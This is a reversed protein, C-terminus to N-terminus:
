ALLGVASEPQLGCAAPKATSDHSGCRRPLLSQQTDDSGTGLVPWQGPRSQAITCLAPGFGLPLPWVKTNGSVPETVWTLIPGSDWM